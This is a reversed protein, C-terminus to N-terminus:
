IVLLLKGLTEKVRTEVKETETALCKVDVDFFLRCAVGAPLFEHWKRETAPLRCFAGAANLWSSAVAFEYGKLGIQREVMVGGKEFAWGRRRFEDMAKDRTSFFPSLLM